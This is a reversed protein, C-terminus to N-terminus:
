EEAQVRRQRHLGLNIVSPRPATPADPRCLLREYVRQQHTRDIWHHYTQTHMEISHGQQRAALEVPWGYGITRIAWAHRLNYPLIRVYRKFAAHVMKGLRENSLSLDVDPPRGNPLDFLEVWEPYCPWVDRAGTKTNEGVRITPWDLEELRFVEHNRLGYTAMIGFVWQWGPNHIKAWAAAIDEDTPISRPNLPRRSSYTGRYANADFEMGLFKVFPGIAWVAQRRSCSSAPISLLFQELVQASLIVDQPLRNLYIGYHRDWTQLRKGQRELLDRKFAEVHERVLGSVASDPERYDAWDFKGTSVRAGLLKAQEYAERLGDMNARLGTAIRQQHRKTLKSGPRPPLTARLALRTGKIDISVGLNAIKLRQNYDKVAEAFTKAM